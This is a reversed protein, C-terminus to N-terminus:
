DFSADDYIAVAESLRGEACASRAKMVLFFAAAVKEGSIQQTEGAEEIQWIAAADLEACLPWHSPKAEQTAAISCSCILALFTAGLSQHRM